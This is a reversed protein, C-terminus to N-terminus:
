KKTCKAKFGDKVIAFSSFKFIQWIKLKVPGKQRIKLKPVIKQKWLKGNSNSSNKFCFFCNIKLLIVNIEKHSTTTKPIRKLYNVYFLENSAVQDAAFNVKM